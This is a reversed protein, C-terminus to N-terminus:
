FASRLIDQWDHQSALYAGGTFFAKLQPGFFKFWEAIYKPWDKKLDASANHFDYYAKLRGSVHVPNRRDGPVMLVVSLAVNEEDVYQKSDLRWFGRSDLQGSTRIMSRRIRYSFPGVVLKAGADAQLALRSKAEDGLTQLKDELAKIQARFELNADLGIALHDQFSLLESWVNEPFMQYIIPAQHPDTEGPAFTLECELRTFAWGSRPFLTVPINIHYFANKAMRAQLDRSLEVQREKFDEETLCRVDLRQGFYAHDRELDQPLERLEALVQEKLPAARSVHKTCSLELDAHQIIETAEALLEQSNWTESITFHLPEAM